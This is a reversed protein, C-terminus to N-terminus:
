RGWHRKGWLHLEQIITLLAEGKNTVTYLVQTPTTGSVITKEIVNEAVLEGLRKGLVQDSLSPFAKKLQSFQQIGKSISFLVQMKWRPSICELIENVECAATLVKLNLANSSNEKILTAM